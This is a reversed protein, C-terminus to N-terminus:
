QQMDGSKDAKKTAKSEIFYSVLLGFGGFFLVSSGYAVSYFTENEWHSNGIYLGKNIFLSLFLGFLLGLGIGTFLCGFRLSTFSKKSFAPLLSSFKPFSFDKPAFNQGIKEILKMREEKRVFLEFVLYIFYFIIGATLPGDLNRFM